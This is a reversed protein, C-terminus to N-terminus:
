FCLINSYYELWSLICITYVKKTMQMKNPPPFNSPTGSSKLTDMTVNHKDDNGWAIRHFGNKQDTVDNDQKVMQNSAISQSHNSRLSAVTHLSRTQTPPHPSISSEVKAAVKFKRGKNVKQNKKSLSKTTVKSKLKANDVQNKVLKETRSKNAQNISHVSSPVPTSKHLPNVSDSLTTSTGDDYHIEHWRVSKSQACHNRKIELSDCVETDDLNANKTPILMKTNSTIHDVWKQRAAVAATHYNSSDYKSVKRLISKCRTSPKALVTTVKDDKKDEDPTLNKSKKQALSQETSNGIVTNLNTLPKNSTNSVNGFAPPQKTAADATKSWECKHLTSIPTACAERFSVLKSTKMDVNNHKGIAEASFSSHVFASYPRVKVQKQGDEYSISKRDFASSPRFSKLYYTSSSSHLPVHTVTPPSLVVQPSPNTYVDAWKSSTNISSLKRDSQQQVDASFLAPNNLSEFLSSSTTAIFEKEHQTHRAEDFNHTYKKHFSTM